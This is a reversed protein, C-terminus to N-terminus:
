LRVDVGDITSTSSLPFSCNQWWGEPGEHGRIPHATGKGTVFKKVRSVAM